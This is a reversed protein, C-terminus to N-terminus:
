GRGGATTTIYQAVHGPNTEWHSDQNWMGYGGGGALYCGTWSMVPAAVPAKMVPTAMDAAVAPSAILIAAVSLFLGNMPPVRKRMERSSIGSVYWPIGGGTTAAPACGLLNGGLDPM